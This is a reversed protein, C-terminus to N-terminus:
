ELPPPPPAPAPRFRAPRRGAEVLHAVRLRAPIPEAAKFALRDRLAQRQEAEVAVRSAAAPSEALYTEVARLRGPVLRGDLYAQLDDEGIPREDTM